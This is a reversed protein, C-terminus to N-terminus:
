NCFSLVTVLDKLIISSNVNLGMYCVFYFLFGFKICVARLHSWFLLFCHVTSSLLCFQLYVLSSLIRFFFLGLSAHCFITRVDTQISKMDGLTSSANSFDLRHICLLSKFLMKSTLDLAQTHNQFEPYTATNSM